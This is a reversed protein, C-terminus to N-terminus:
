AQARHNDTGENMWARNQENIIAQARHALSRDLDAARQLAECGTQTHGSKALQRGCAFNLAADSRNNDCISKCIQAIEDTDALQKALQLYRMASESHLPQEAHQQKLQKFRKLDHQFRSHHEDWEPQIRNQWDSDLANLADRSLLSACASQKPLGSWALNEVGLGALLDRLEGNDKSCTQAQLLWRNATDRNLTKGLLLEFHNFPKVVPTPCRDAAKMIMPWYQNRLYLDALVQNTLLQEAQQEDAQESVWRSADLQLEARLERGHTDNLANVWQLMPLFLHTAISTRAQLADILQPWEECRRVIWGQLGKQKRSEAAIAGALALRFLDRSLFFMLPAGVTLVTTHDFPAANRPVQHITLKAKDTLIVQNFAAIHFHAVRRELMSFLEPADHADLTVGDPHKPHTRYQQFTVWSSFLALGCLVETVFWDLPGQIHGYMWMATMSASVLTIAPSLLLLSVAGNVLSLVALRLSPNRDLARKLRAGTPQLWHILPNNVAQYQM